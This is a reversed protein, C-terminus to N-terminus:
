ALGNIENQILAISVVPILVGLVIWLVKNDTTNLGRAKKIENINVDADYGLLAGGAAGVFLLLLVTVIPPISTNKGEAQLATLTVYAWWCGYIGCTIITLIVVSAVSRKTLM